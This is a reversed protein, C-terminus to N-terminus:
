LCFCFVLYLILPWNLASAELDGHSSMKYGKSIVSPLGLFLSWATVLVFETRVPFRVGTKFTTDTLTSVPACWIRKPSYYCKGFLCVIAIREALCFASVQLTHAPVSFIMAENFIPSREGKKTSTRKKHIKKGHQLLYVQL